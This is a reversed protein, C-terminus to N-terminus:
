THVVRKRNNMIEFEDAQMHKIQPGDEADGGGFEDMKEKKTQFKDVLEEM